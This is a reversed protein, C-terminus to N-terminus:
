LRGLSRTMGVCSVSRLSTSVPPIQQTASRGLKELAPAFSTHLPCEQGSSKVKFRPPALGKTKESRHVPFPVVELRAALTAGFEKDNRRALSALCSSDATHGLGLKELAPAFSTHLPYEQGSSKVKFHPPALGKTKESRPVPFPVVELRVGLTV